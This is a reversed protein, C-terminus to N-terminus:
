VSWGRPHNFNVLNRNDGTAFQDTKVSFSHRIGENEGDVMVTPVSLELEEDFSYNVMRTITDKIDCQFVLRAMEINQLETASVTEDVLQYVQYGQFRYYGDFDTIAGYTTGSPQHVAVINAGLLPEGEPDTVQGGMSSTTVGQSFAMVTFLFAAVALYMKKM